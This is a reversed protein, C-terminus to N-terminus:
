NPYSVHFLAQKANIINQKAFSQSWGWMKGLVAENTAKM